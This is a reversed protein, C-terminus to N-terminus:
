RGGDNRVKPDILIPTPLKDPDTSDSGALLGITFPAGYGPKQDYLKALDVYFHAVLKGKESSSNTTPVVTRVGCLVQQQDDNTGVGHFDGKEYFQWAQDNRIVVRVRVYGTKGFGTPEMLVDFADVPEDGTNDKFGGGGNVGTQPDNVPIKKGYNVLRELTKANLKKPVVINITGKIDGDAPSCDRFAYISKVPTTTPTPTAGAGGAANQNCGSVALALLAPGFIWGKQM